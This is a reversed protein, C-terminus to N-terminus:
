LFSVEEMFSRAFAVDTIMNARDQQGVFLFLEQFVNRLYESALVTKSLKM